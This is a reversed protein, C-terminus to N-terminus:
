LSNFAKGDARQPKLQDLEIKLAEIQGKNFYESGLYLFHM